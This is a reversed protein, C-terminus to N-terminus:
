QIDPKTSFTEALYHIGWRPFRITFFNYFLPGWSAFGRMDSDPKTLCVTPTWNFWAVNRSLCAFLAGWFAHFLVYVIYLFSSFSFVCM